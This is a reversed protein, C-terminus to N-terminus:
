DNSASIDVVHEEMMQLMFSAPPVAKKREKGDLRGKSSALLSQVPNESLVDDSMMPNFCGMSEFFRMTSVVRKVIAKSPKEDHRDISYDVLDHVHLECTAGKLSTLWM